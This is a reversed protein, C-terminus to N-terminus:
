LVGVQRFLTDMDSCYRTEQKGGELLVVAGDKPVEPVQKLRDILRERNLSFLRM